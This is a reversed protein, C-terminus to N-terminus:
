TWVDGVLLCAYLFKRGLATYRLYVIIFYDPGCGMVMLVWSYINRGDISYLYGFLSVRIDRVFILRM